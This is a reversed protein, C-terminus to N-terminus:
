LKEFTPSIYLLTHQFIQYQKTSSHSHGAQVFPSPHAIRSPRGPVECALERLGGYLAGCEIANRDLIYSILINVSM